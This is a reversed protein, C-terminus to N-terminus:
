ALLVSEQLRPNRKLSRAVFPAGPGADQGQDPSHEACLWDSNKANQDTNARGESMHVLHLNCDWLVNSALDEQHRKKSLFTAPKSEVSSV